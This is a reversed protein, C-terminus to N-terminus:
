KVDFQIKVGAYYETPQDANAVDKMYDRYSVSPWFSLNKDIAIKADVCYLMQKDAKAGSLDIEDSQYGVAAGIQFSPDLVLILNVYGEMHTSNKIKNGDEAAFAANKTFQADQNVSDYNSSAVPGLNIGFNGANQGYAFNGRLKIIGFSLDVHAYGLYAVVTEGDLPGPTVLDSDNIKTSQYAGGFGVIIGEAKYDYGVAIKPYLTTTDNQTLASDYITATSGTSKSGAPAIFAVYVGMVDVKVLPTRSDYSAGFGTMNNDAATDADGAVWTYPTYDQGVTLKLGGFDYTANLLRLTVGSAGLGFEVVGKVNGAAFKTGFRSNPQLQYSMDTENDAFSGELNTPIDMVHYGYWARLSVYPDFKAAEQAFASATFLCVSLILLFKKM